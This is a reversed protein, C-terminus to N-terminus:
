HPPSPIATTARTPDMQSFVIVNSVAASSSTTVARNPNKKKKAQIEASAAKLFFIEM